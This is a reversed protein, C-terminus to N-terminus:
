FPVEDYNLKDIFYTIYGAVLNLVLEAEHISINLGNTNGHSVGKAGGRYAFIKIVSQVIPSPIQGEANGQLKNLYKTFDNAVPKGTIVEVTSELACISEKVSNEIDPQPNKRFFKLAKNYHTRAQSFRNEALVIGMKEVNKRTIAHGGRIFQGDMIEYALNDERVLTNIEDQFRLQAEELEILDGPVYRAKLLKEYIREIFTYIQSWELKYLASEVDNQCFDEDQNTFKIRGCRYIEQRMSLWSGKICGKEVFEYLINYLGNRTHEPFDDDITKENLLGHRIRFPIKSM